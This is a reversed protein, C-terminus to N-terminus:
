TAAMAVDSAQIRGGYISSVHAAYVNRLPEDGAIPGYRAAEGSKAAAALHELMGPHPPYGPVAQSLDIAPGHARDRALWGQAEPIPPSGVAAVLPNLAPSALHSM